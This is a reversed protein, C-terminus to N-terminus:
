LGCLVLPTAVEVTEIAGSVWGQMSSFADGVVYIQSGDTAGNPIQAAATPVDAGKAWKHSGSPWYKYTTHAYDPPPISENPHLRKVMAFVEQAAKEPSKVFKSHWETAHQNSNYILLDQLM